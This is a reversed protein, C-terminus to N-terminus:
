GAPMTKTRQPQTDSDRGAPLRNSSATTTTLLPPPSVISAISLGSASRAAASSTSAPRESMGGSGCRVM